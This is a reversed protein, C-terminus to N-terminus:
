IQNEDSVLKENTISIGRSGTSILVGHSLEQTTQKGNSNDKLFNAKHTM